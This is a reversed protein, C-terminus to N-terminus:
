LIKALEADVEVPLPGVDAAPDLLKQGIGVVGRALAYAGATDSRAARSEATLRASTRALADALSSAVVGDDVEGLACEVARTALAFLVDMTVVFPVKQRALALYREGFSRGHDSRAVVAAGDLYARRAETSAGGAPELTPSALTLDDAPTEEWFSGPESAGPARRAVPRSAAAAKPAAGGCAVWGMASVLALLPAVLQRVAESR